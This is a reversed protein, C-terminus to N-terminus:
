NIQLFLVFFTIEWLMEGGRWLLPFFGWAFLFDQNNSEIKPTTLINSDWWNNVHLSFEGTAIDVFAKSSM